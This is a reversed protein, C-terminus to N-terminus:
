FDVRLALITTDAADGKAAVHEFRLSAGGGLDSTLAVITTSLDEPMADTGGMDRDIMQIGYSVGSDAISGSLAVITHDDRSEDVDGMNNSDMGTDMSGVGLALNMGALNTSIAFGTFSQKPNQTTTTTSTTTMARRPTADMDDTMDQNSELAGSGDDKFTQTSDAIGDDNADDMDHDTFLDGVNVPAPDPLEVYPMSTTTMTDPADEKSWHALGINVPGASATAGFAITATGAGDTWRDIQFGVAGVSSSYSIM